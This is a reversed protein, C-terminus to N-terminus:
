DIWDAKIKDMTGNDILTQIAKNLAATLGPNSKSVVIGYEEATPVSELVKIGSFSKTILGEAAPLDNVCGDVKGAMMANFADTINTFGVIEADPLNEEAWMFGTTGSQAGVRKGAFGERSTIASDAPVTIAQNVGDVFYPITFDVEQQREPTITFSSVAVDMKGGGVIQPILTDFNQPSLYEITLGLEQGIALMMDYEFGQPNGAADLEIFPPYDCDSGVLLVGPKITTFADAGAPDDTTVTADDSGCGVLGLGFLLVLAVAIILISKKM